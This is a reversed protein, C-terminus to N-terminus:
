RAAVGASGVAFATWVIVGNWDKKMLCQVAALMQLGAVLLGFKIM